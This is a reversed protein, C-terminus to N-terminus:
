FRFWSIVYDIVKEIPNKEVPKLVGLNIIVCKCGPIGVKHLTPMIPCRKTDRMKASITITKLGVKATTNM